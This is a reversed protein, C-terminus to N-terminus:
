ITVTGPSGLGGPSVSQRLCITGCTSGTATAVSFACREPDGCCRNALTGCVLALALVCAAYAGAFMSYGLTTMECSALFLTRARIFLIVLTLCCGGLLLHTRRRSISAPTARLLLALMSGALLADM